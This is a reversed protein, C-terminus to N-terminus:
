SLENETVTMYYEVIIRYTGYNLADKTWKQIIELKESHYTTSVNVDRWM